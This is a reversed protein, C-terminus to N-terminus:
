SNKYKKIAIITGAAVLSGAIFGPVNNRVLDAAGVKIREQVGPGADNIIKQIDVQEFYADIEADANQYAKRLKQDDKTYDALVLAETVWSGRNGSTLQDAKRAVWKMFDNDGDALPVTEESIIEADVIDRTGLRNM